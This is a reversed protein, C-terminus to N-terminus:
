LPVDYDNDDFDDDDDGDHHLHSDGMMVVMMVMMMMKVEVLPHLPSGGRHGVSTRGWLHSWLM